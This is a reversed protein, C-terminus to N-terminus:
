EKQKNKQWEALRSIVMKILVISQICTDFLKIFGITGTSSNMENRLRLFGGTQIYIELVRAM